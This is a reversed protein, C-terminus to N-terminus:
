HRSGELDNHVLGNLRLRLKVFAGFYQTEIQNVIDNATTEDFTHSTLNRSQIMQMWTEGEELLGLKFAERTVDKSGFLDTRGRSELFDKMTKWALEHTYEFSQIVGQKELKSLARLGM